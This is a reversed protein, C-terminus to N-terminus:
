SVGRVRKSVQAACREAREVYTALMQDVEAELTQAFERDALTKTNVYVNLSAAELAARCLYLGCGVDSLLMRSGKQGMEELLDIAECVQRMMELPAACARKTAEELLAARRPDDRPIAYAQSLPLFAEADERILQLLRSRVDKAQELMRQIDPEVSAYAKKGTTYNGVMSCLAVGLAGALAAAGGGGPVPEKAALVNVFDPFTGRMMTDIM